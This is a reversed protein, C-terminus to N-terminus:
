QFDPVWAVPEWEMLGEGSYLIWIQGGKPHDHLFSTRGLLGNADVGIITPGRRGTQPTKPADSIPKWPDTM